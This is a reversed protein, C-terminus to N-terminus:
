VFNLNKISSLVEEFMEIIKPDGGILSNRSSKIRAKEIIRDLHVM